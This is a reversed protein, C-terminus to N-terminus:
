SLLELLEEEIRQGGFPSAARPATANFNAALLSFDGISTSQDYNFNGRAWTTPSANFNAALLAFDSINTAKDLNADGYRTFRVLLATNDITRGAFTAPFTTFLDTAEAYGIAFTSTGAASTSNIGNGTWAGGNYGTSLLSRITPLVTAGSYDVILDNNTLNLRGTGTISLADTDIVKGGGATLSASGGAGINLAALDQTVEFAATATGTNDNNINVTDLGVRGDLTVSVGVPHDPVNITDAGDGSNIRVAETASFTTAATGTRAFSSGNLTYVHAFATSHDNFIVSDSGGAGDFSIPGLIPDLSVTGFFGPTGGVTLTDNETSGNVTVPTTALTSTVFIIKNQVATANWTLGEFATYVIPDSALIDLRNNSIINAALFGGSLIASNNVLLADNGAGGNVTAASGSQFQQLSIDFRITDDGNNGNLVLPLQATATDRNNFLLDNGGGGEVRLAEFGNYTVAANTTRLMQTSNVTYSNNLASTIDNYVLSDFNEEGFVEVAGDILDANAGILGINFIDNGLHGALKLSTGATTASVNFNDGGDAGYLERREILSTTVGGFGSRNVTNGSISYTNAATNGFDSLVVSDLAGSGGDVFVPAVVNSLNASGAAIGIYDNGTGGRVTTETFFPLSEIFIQDDGDGADIIIETVGIALFDTVFPPLNGAGPLAGTGPADNGIDVTVRITNGNIFRVDILDNSLAPGTAASGTAGRILLRGNTEDIIAHMTGFEMPERITYGYADALIHATAFSPLYRQGGYLANGPDVSGRYNLGGFDVTATPGATHVVNGWSNVGASGSNFSTMLHDITAGNFVRYTGNGGGQAIDPVGTNTVFNELRYNEFGGGANNADSIIGLVHALEITVLSYFDLQGSPLEATYANIINGTFEANDFPDPDAFWGNVDNPDASNNGGGLNVSGTRPKGDSPASGPSASGGFGTGPAGVTVSVQLTTTGDARNWNTIVQQWALLAADVVNRMTEASTGFAANFGDSTQNRNTWNIITAEPGGRAALKARGEAEIADSWEPAPPLMELMHSDCLLKRSELIDCSLIPRRSPRLM